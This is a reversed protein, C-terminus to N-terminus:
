YINRFKGDIKPNLSTLNKCCWSLFENQGDDKISQKEPKEKKKEDVKKKTIDKKKIPQVQVERAPIVKWATTWAIDGTSALEEIRQKKQQDVVAALEKAEEAQIEAFSKAGTPPPLIKTWTLLNERTESIPPDVHKQQEENRRERREAKQIEALSIPATSSSVNSSWPAVSPAPTFTQNPKECEKKEFKKKMDKKNILSQHKQQNKKPKEEIKKANLEDTAKPTENINDSHWSTKENVVVEKADETEKNRNELLCEFESSNQIIQSSAACVHPSLNQLSLLYEPFGNQLM